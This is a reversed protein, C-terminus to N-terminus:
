MNHGSASLYPLMDQITQLHLACNGTHEARIDKRLIDIIGMYKVWLSATGSSMNASEAHRHLHVKTRNLVDSRYIYEVSVTGDVLKEYGVRAEDLDSTDIVEDSLYDPPITAVEANNNLAADVSFIHARVARVIVKGSLIHVVANPDYILELLKPLGSSGMLHGTCGLFSMEAHFGGLRLVIRRLDSVIPESHIIM